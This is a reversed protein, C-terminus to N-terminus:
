HVKKTKLVTLIKRGVQAAGLVFTEEEEILSLMIEAVDTSDVEHQHKEGRSHGATCRVNGPM